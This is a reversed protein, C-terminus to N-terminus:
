SSYVRVAHTTMFVDAPHKRKQHFVHTEVLYPKTDGAPGISKKFVFRILASRYLKKASCSVVLQTDLTSAFVFISLTPTKLTRRPVWTLDRQAHLEITLM